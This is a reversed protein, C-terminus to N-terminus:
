APQQLLRILVQAAARTAHTIHHACALIHVGVHAHACAYAYACGGVLPTTFHQKLGLAAMKAWGIDELNGTVLGTVCNPRQALAALLEPVGPLVHLGESITGAHLKCYELM